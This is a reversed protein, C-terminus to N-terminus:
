WGAPSQWAKAPATQQLQWRRDIFFLDEKEKTGSRAVRVVELVWARWRARAANSRQGQGQSQQEV